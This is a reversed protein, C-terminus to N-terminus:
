KIKRFFKKILGIKGFLLWYLFAFIFFLPVGFLIVYIIVMLLGALFGLVNTALNTFSNNMDPYEVSRDIKSEPLCVSIDITSFQIKFSLLKMQGQLSELDYTIDNIKQEITLMDKIDKAQRLYQELRELMIKKTAIRTELDYYQNTVDQTNSNKSTVRGYEGLKSFAKEFNECPIKVTLRFFNPNSHSNAIYGGFESAWAEISTKALNLDKAELSIDGTYILKQEKQVSSDANGAGKDGATKAAKRDSFSEMSVDASEMESLPAPLPAKMSDAMEEDYYGGSFAASSKSSYSKKSCSVATLLSAAFGLFLFGYRIVTKLCMGYNKKSEKTNLIDSKM